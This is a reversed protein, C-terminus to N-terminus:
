GRRRRTSFYCAEDADISYEATGAPRITFAELANGTMGTILVNSDASNAARSRNAVVLV